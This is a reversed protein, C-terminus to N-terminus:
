CHLFPGHALVRGAKLFQFLRSFSQLRWFPACGQWCSWVFRTLAHPVRWRRLQLIVRTNVVATTATCQLLSPFWHPARRLFECCSLHSSIKRKREEISCLKVWMKKPLNQRWILSVPVILPGPDTKLSKKKGPELFLSSALHGAASWMVLLVLSLVSSERRRFELNLWEKCWVTQRRTGKM